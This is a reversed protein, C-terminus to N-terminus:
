GGAHVLHLHFDKLAVSENTNASQYLTLHLYSTASDLDTVTVEANPASGSTGAWKNASQAGVARVKTSANRQIINFEGSTRQGTVATVGEIFTDGVTGATGLRFCRTFTTTSATRAVVSRIEFFDGIQMISKLNNIPIAFSRVLTENTYNSGTPTFLIDANISDVLVRGATYRWLYDSGILRVKVQAGGIGIGSKVWCKLGDLKASPTPLSPFDDFVLEGGIHFWRSALANWIFLCQKDYVYISAKDTVQAPTLALFEAWTKSSPEISQGAVQLGMGQPDTQLIKMWGRNEFFDSIFNPM